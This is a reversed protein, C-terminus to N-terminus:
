ERIVCLNTPHIPRFLQALQAACLSSLRHFM